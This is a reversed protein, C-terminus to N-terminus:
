ETYQEYDFDEKWSNETLFDSDFQKSYEIWMACFLFDPLIYGYKKLFNLTIKKILAKNNLTYHLLTQLDNTQKWIEYWNLFKCSNSLCCSQM